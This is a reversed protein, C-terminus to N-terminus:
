YIIMILFIILLVIYTRALYRDDMTSSLHTGIPVGLLTGVGIGFFAPIYIYGLDYPLGPDAYLGTIIYGVSGFVAVIPTLAVALASANVMPAKQRRFFPVTFVSGGIGLLVALFATFFFYVCTLWNKPMKFDSQQYKDTFGKKFVASVIVYILLAMFLYRLWDSHLYHAILTGIIAGAIMWPALQRSVSWDINGKRHHSWISNFTTILMVALSTAVAMHMNLSEAIGIHKLFVYLIPVVVVGGGLGFMGSLVGAVVGTIAMVAIDVIM